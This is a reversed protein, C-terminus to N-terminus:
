KAKREDVERPYNQNIYANIIERTKVHEDKLGHIANSIVDIDLGNSGDLAEIYFWQLLGLATIIEKSLGDFSNRIACCSYKIPESM